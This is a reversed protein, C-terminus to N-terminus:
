ILLKPNIKNRLKTEEKIHFKYIEMKKKLDMYMSIKKNIIQELKTTYNEMNFNTEEGVGKINSILEGEETLMKADDKIIDM